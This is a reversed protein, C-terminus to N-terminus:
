EKEELRIVIQILAFALYRMLHESTMDTNRPVSNLVAVMESVSAKIEEESM